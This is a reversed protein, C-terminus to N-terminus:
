DFYNEAGPFKGTVVTVGKVTFERRAPNGLLAERNPVLPQITTWIRADMEALALRGAFFQMFQVATTEVGMAMSSASLAQFLGVLLQLSASNRDELAFAMDYLNQDSIELWAVRTAASPLDPETGWPLALVVLEFFFDDGNIRATASPTERNANAVYQSLDLQTGGRSVVRGGEITVGESAGAFTLAFNALTSQLSTADVKGGLIFCARHDFSM